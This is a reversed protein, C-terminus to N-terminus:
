RGWSAATRSSSRGQITAVASPSTGSSGSTTDGAICPMQLLPEVPVGFTITADTGATNMGSKLVGIISRHRGTARGCVIRTSAGIYWM